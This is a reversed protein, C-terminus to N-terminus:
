ARACYAEQYEKIRTKLDQQHKGADAEADLYGIVDQLSLLSMVPVELEAALAEVATTGDDGLEQRDLAIVVGVLTGGAQRILGV